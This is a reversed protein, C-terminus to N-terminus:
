TVAWGTRYPARRSVARSCCSCSAHRTAPRGEASLMQAMAEMKEHFPSLAETWVSKAAEIGAYARYALSECQMFSLALAEIEVRGRALQGTRFALVLLGGEHEAQTGDPLLARTPGDTWTAVTLM